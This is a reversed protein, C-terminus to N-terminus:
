DLVKMGEFKNDVGEPVKKDFQKYHKVLHNFGKKLEVAPIGKFGGRAGGLVAMAAVVGKWVVKNGDKTHHPGKYGGINDLNDKDEFLCMSALKDVDTGTTEAGADWDRNEDAKASDGHRAYPIAKWNAM